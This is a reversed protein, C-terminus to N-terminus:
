GNSQSDAPRPTFEKCTECWHISQDAAPRQITCNGHLRCEFSPVRKAPCNCPEHHDFEGLHTCHYDTAVIVSQGAALRERNLQHLRQRSM